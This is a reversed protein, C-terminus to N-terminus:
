YDGRRLADDADQDAENAGKQKMKIYSTLKSNLQSNKIM